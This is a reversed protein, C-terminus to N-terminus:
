IMSRASQEQHLIHYLSQEMQDLFRILVALVLEDKSEYYYYIAPKTIGIQKSIDSLSTKEYGQKIFLDLAEDLIQQQTPQM